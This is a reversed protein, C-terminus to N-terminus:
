NRGVGFGSMNGSKIDFVEVSQDSLWYNIKAANSEQFSANENKRYSLKAPSQSSGEITMMDTLDSYVLRNAVVEFLQSIVTTNGKAEILNEPKEAGRPQWRSFNLQESRVVAAGMPLLDPRDPDINQNVSEVTSWATRTNGTIQLLHDNSNAKLQGDFNVHACTLEKKASSAGTQQNRQGRQGRNAFGTMRGNQDSGALQWTIATGPGTATIDGSEANVAATPVLLRQMSVLSGRTDVTRNEVLVPRDKSNAHDAVPDSHSALRFARQNQDVHSVLEIVRVKPKSKRASVTKGDEAQNELDKFNLAETLEVKLGQSLTKISSQQGDKPRQLADMAIDREFYIRSGDFIMGGGWAIDIKELRGGFQSETPPRQGSLLRADPSPEVKAADIAMEGGGHVWITNATQDLHLSEGSLDFGDTKFVAPKQKKGSVLVRFLNDGQPFLRMGAGHLEFARKTKSRNALHMQGEVTLDRITMNKMDGTVNAIVADGEFIMPEAAQTTSENAAVSNRAPEALQFQDASWKEAPPIFTGGSPKARAVGEAKRTPKAPQLNSTAAALPSKKAPKPWNAVFTKSQGIVEPTRFMVNGNSDLQSPAYEWKRDKMTSDAAETQWVLFALRDAKIGNLEGFSIDAQQDIEIRLRENDHQRVSLLKAWQVRFEKAPKGNKSDPAVGRLQGPGSADLPGLSNDSMLRYQLSPARFELKPNQLVVPSTGNAKIVSERVDFYLFEGSIRTQSSRSEITAPRMASGVAVLSKVSTSENNKSERDFEIELSDCRLNDGFRDLQEVVVADKFSAKQEKIRFVFPGACSLRLPTTQNSLSMSKQPDNSPPSQANASPMGTTHFRDTEAPQLVLERVSALELQEIGNITSFSNSPSENATAEGNHEHALKISLNRGSGRHSGFQFDVENLTFIYQRNVQISQTVVRLQQEKNASNAPRYVTVQGLLHASEMEAKESSSGATLPKSFKLKAGEFARLVVPTATKADQPVEPDRMAAAAPDNIVLTFPKLEYTGQDDIRDWKQFYVTGQPTLLTKCPSLEWANEPLLSPLHSKNLGNESANPPVYAAQVRAAVPPGELIPVALKAYATYAVIMASLAFLYSALPNMRNPM